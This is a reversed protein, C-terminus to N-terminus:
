NSKVQKELWFGRAKAPPVNWFSEEWFHLEPHSFDTHSEPMDYDQTRNTVPDRIGFAKNIVQHECGRMHRPLCAFAVSWIGISFDDCDVPTIFYRTIWELASGHPLVGYMMMEYEEARPHCTINYFKTQPNRRLYPAVIQCSEKVSTASALYVINHFNLQAGYKSIIENILYPGMSHGILTIKIEPHKKQIQILRECLLAYTGKPPHLFTEIYSDDNYNLITYAGFAARARAQMINWSSSAVWDILSTTFFRVPMGGVYAIRALFVEHWPMFDDGLYMTMPHDQLIQATKPSLDTFTFEDATLFYAETQRYINAPLRMLARGVDQILYLPSSAIGAPGIDVGGRIFFLHDLYCDFLNSEWALTLPYYDSTEWVEKLIAESREVEFAMDNQGGFAYVMIHKRGSQYLREEFLDMQNCFTFNEQTWLSSDHNLREAILPTGDPNVAVIKDAAFHSIVDPACGSLVLITLILFLYRM